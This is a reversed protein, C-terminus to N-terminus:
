VIYEYLAFEMWGTNEYFMQLSHLKRFGLGEYLREAPLNGKIVDLRIVKQHNQLAM